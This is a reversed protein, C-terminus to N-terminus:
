NQPTIVAAILKYAWGNFPESLSICLLAHGVQIAGNQGLLYQREVPPDTISLYHQVGGHTFRGRVKRKGNGFEAGEVVVNVQLDHVEILRLSGDAPVAQDEAVRDHVGSYSSSMNSWLPRGTGDVAARAQQWTARGQLTWYYDADILHNEIQFAHPKPEILTIRVIDLVRPDRGNEFRRDEESLEANERASVPRIWAGLNGNAIERGAICRGSTKRSNALCLITKDYNPM